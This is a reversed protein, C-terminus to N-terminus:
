ESFLIDMVLIATRFDPVPYLRINGELRGYTPEQGEYCPAFVHLRYGREPLVSCFEGEMQAAINNLTEEMQKRYRNIQTGDSM